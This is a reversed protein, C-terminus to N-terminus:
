GILGVLGKVFSLGALDNVTVFLMFALLAIMGSRYAWEQAVVGVPKRRVAEAAFFALHGGDLTPIPLLNIFGLNISIMTMFFLFTVLGYQAIVGSTAAIKVPGGLQAVSREGVVVQKITRVMTTLAQATFRAAAGPLQLPSLRVHEVEAPAMGIRGIALSAGSLDKIQELKPTVQTAITRGAREVVFAMPQGARVQVLLAVDDFREIAQGDISAIRDGARIGAEYAASTKTFAGAVPAIRPEGCLAFLGALMVIAFAFNAAPGALVILFRQWVPKAQFTRNREAPPLSLWAPDANSAAGMDGAFRVYGGLPLWALQWRTGRRDVFSAIRRGFGVSFVEAKVGFVRAMAYHGLEHLVVLPSIALVFFLLTWLLGPQAIM